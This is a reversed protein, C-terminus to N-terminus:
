SSHLLRGHCSCAKGSVAQCPCPSLKGVLDAKLLHCNGPQRPSEVHLRRTQLRVNHVGRVELGANRQDGEGLERITRGLSHGAAGTLGSERSQPVGIPVIGPLMRPAECGHLQPEIGVRGGPAGARPVGAM